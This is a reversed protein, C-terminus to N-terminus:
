IPLARSIGNRHSGPILSLCGNEETADTIAIWVTLIESDDAEERTVGLDQHWGTQRVLSSKSTNAIVETQQPKIRVHQVPNSYIESGILSEIADLLPPYTLMDFVPKSLHIPSKATVQEHTYSIDFHRFINDPSANLVAGM